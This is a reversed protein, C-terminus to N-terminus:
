GFKVVNAGKGASTGMGTGVDVGVSVSAGRVGKGAEDEVDVTDVIVEVTGVELATDPNKM